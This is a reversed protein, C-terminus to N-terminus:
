GMARLSQAIDYLSQILFRQLFIIAFFVIIPSFDIGGAYIPLARRVRYLVPETITYIFRVIPNYPDADVWSIIARAILVWMYAWLIYDLVRAVAVLLNAIIFM